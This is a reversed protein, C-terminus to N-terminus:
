TWSSNNDAKAKSMLWTQLATMFHLPVSLQRSFKQLLFHSHESIIKPQQSHWCKYNKKKTTCSVMLFTFPPRLGIPRARRTSSMVCGRNSNFWDCVYSPSLTNQKIQANRGTTSWSRSLRPKTPSWDGHSRTQLTTTGRSWLSGQRTM